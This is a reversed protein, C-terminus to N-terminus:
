LLEFYLVGLQDIVALGVQDMLFFNFGLFEQDLAEFM